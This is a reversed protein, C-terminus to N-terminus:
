GTPSIRAGSSYNMQIILLGYAKMFLCICPFFVLLTGQIDIECNRLSSTNMVTSIHYTTNEFLVKGGNGCRDFADLIAPADDVSESGGAKVVCTKTKQTDATVFGTRLSLIFLLAKGLFM